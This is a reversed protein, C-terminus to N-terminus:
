ADEKNSYYQKLDSGTVELVIRKEVAYDRNMKGYDPCEAMFDKNDPTRCEEDHKTPMYMCGCRNCTYVRRLDTEVIRGHQIIKM